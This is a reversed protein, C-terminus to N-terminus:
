FETDPKIIGLRKGRDIEQNFEMGLKLYLKESNQLVDYLINPPLNKLDRSYREVEASDLDM